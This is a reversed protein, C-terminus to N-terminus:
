DLEVYEEIGLLTAVAMYINRERDTQGSEEYFDEIAKVLEKRTSKDPIEIGFPNSTSISMLTNYIADSDMAYGVLDAINDKTFNEFGATALNYLSLITDVETQYDDSGKLKMLEKLLTEIVNYTPEAFEAPIGMSTLTEGSLINPLLGITFDNLNNILSTLSNVLAEQNEEPTANNGGSMASGMGILAGATGITGGIDEGKEYGDKVSEIMGGVLENEGLESGAVIDLLTSGVGKLPSNQLTTVANAIKEFDMKAPDMNGQEDTASSVASVLDTVVSSLTAATEAAKEDDALATQVTVLITEKITEVTPVDTEFKEPDQLQGLLADANGEPAEVDEPKINSISGQVNSASFNELTETGHAATHSKVENVIHQAVSDTFASNDGSIGRNLIASIAKTLDLLKQVEAEYEEDSLKKTKLQTKRASLNAKEAHAEEYAVIGAYDIETNKVKDAISDMMNNYVAEKNAPMNMSSVASEVATSVLQPVIGRLLESQVLDNMLTDVFAKDSLLEYVANPDDAALLKNLAGGSLANQVTTLLTGLEKTLYLTRGNVEFKSVSNLYTNGAAKFGITGYFNVVASDTIGYVERIMDADSATIAEQEVLTDLLDGVTTASPMTNFLGFLPTMLMAFILVGSIIGMGMGAFRKAVRVGMSPTKKVPIEVAPIEETPLEEGEIIEAPAAVIAPAPATNKKKGLDEKFISRRLPRQICLFLIWTVFRLVIFVLPFVVIGMVFTPAVLIAEKLLPMTDLTAAIDSGRLSSLILEGITLGEITVNEAVARTIPAAILFTLLIALALTVLRILSKNMGRILGVLASISVVVAFLATFILTVM